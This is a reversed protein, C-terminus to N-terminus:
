VQPNENAYVLTFDDAFLGTVPRHYGVVDQTDMWRVDLREIGTYLDRFSLLVFAAQGRENRIVDGTEFRTPEM